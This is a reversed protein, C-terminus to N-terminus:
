RNRHAQLASSAGSAILLLNIRFGSPKTAISLKATALPTGETLDRYVTDLGFVSRLHFVRAFTMFRTEEFFQYFVEVKSFSHRFAGVL